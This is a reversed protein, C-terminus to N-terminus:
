RIKLLKATFDAFGYFAGDWSIEGVAWAAMYLTYITTLMSELSQYHPKDNLFGSEVNCLYEMVSGYKANKTQKM